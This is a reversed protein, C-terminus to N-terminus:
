RCSLVVEGQVFIIENNNQPVPINTFPSYSIENQTNASLIEDKSFTANAFLTANAKISDVLASEENACVWDNSTNKLAALRSILADASLQGVPLCYIDTKQNMSEICKNSSTQPLCGKSIAEPSKPSCVQSLSGFTSLAFDKSTAVSVDVLLAKGTSNILKKTKTTTSLNYTIANTIQNGNKDVLPINSPVNIKSPESTLSEAITQRQTYVFAASLLAVAGVMTRFLKKNSKEVRHLHRIINADNFNAQQASTFLINQSSAEQELRKKYFEQRKAPDKPLTNKGM